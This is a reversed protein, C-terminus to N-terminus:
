FGAFCIKRWEIWCACEFLGRYEFSFHLESKPHCRNWDISRISEFQFTFILIKNRFNLWLWSDPTLMWCEAVLAIRSRTNTRALTYMICWDIKMPQRLSHASLVCSFLRWYFVNQKPKKEDKMKITFMNYICFPLLIKGTWMECKTM